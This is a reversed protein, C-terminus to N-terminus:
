LKGERYDEMKRYLRELEELEETTLVSYDLEPEEATASLRQEDISTAEGVALRELSTSATMLPAIQSMPLQEGSLGKLREVLRRQVLRALERHNALMETRAQRQELMRERDEEADFAEARAVWGNKRSWEKVQRLHHSKPTSEPEYEYFIAAVKRLSRTIGIDRYLAFAGYSRGTEDPQRDWFRRESM